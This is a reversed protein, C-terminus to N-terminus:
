EREEEDWFQRTAAASLPVPQRKRLRAYHDPLPSKKKSENADAISKSASKRKM